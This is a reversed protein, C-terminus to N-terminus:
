ETAVPGRLVLETHLVRYGHRRNLSLMQELRLENATRLTRIGHRKAWAIQARKIAGAIGRGRAQRALATFGHTAAAGDVTLYGYGVVRDDELAIFCADAPNPDLSWGRWVDYPSLRSDARGPQDPYAVLAIEYLAPALDPRAALTTLPFAPPGPEPATGVDLESVAYRRVIEYGHRELFGAVEPTEDTTWVELQTKGLRRAAASAERWLREAPERLWVEALPLHEFGQAPRVEV